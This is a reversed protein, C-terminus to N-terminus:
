CVETEWSLIIIYFNAYFTLLHPIHCNKGLLCLVLRMACCGDTPPVSITASHLTMPSSLTWLCEEIIIIFYGMNEICGMRRKKWGFKSKAEAVQTTEPVVYVRNPASLYSICICEQEYYRVCHRIEEPINTRMSSWSIRRKIYNLVGQSSIIKRYYGDCKSQWLRLLGPLFLDQRAQKPISSQDFWPESITVLENTYLHHLDPPYLGFIHQPALLKRLDM